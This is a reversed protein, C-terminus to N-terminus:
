TFNEDYIRQCDSLYNELSDGFYGGNKLATVYDELSVSDYIDNEEYYRLYKGFYEAYAEPSEFERYWLSGDPQPLDNPTSQTIGGFNNYNVCLESIFGGTEHCWQSYIWEPKIIDGREENAIEAARKALEFYYESM